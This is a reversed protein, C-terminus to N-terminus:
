RVENLFGCWVITRSRKTMCYLCARSFRSMENPTAESVLTVTWQAAVYVFDGASESVHKAEACCAVTCWCLRGAYTQSLYDIAAALKDKVSRSNGCEICRPLDWLGEVAVENRGNSKRGFQKEKWPEPLRPYAVVSFMDSRTHERIPLTDISVICCGPLNSTSAIRCGAFSLGREM